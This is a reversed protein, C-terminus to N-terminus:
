TAKESKYTAIIIILIIIIILVVIIMIIFIAIIIYRYHSIFVNTMHILAMNRRYATQEYEVGKPPLIM